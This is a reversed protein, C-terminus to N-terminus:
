LYQFSGRCTLLADDCCCSAVPRVYDFTSLHARHSLVGDYCCAKMYLVRRAICIHLCSAKPRDNTDNPVYLSFHEPPCSIALSTSHHNETNSGYIPVCAYKADHWMSPRSGHFAIAHWSHIFRVQRKRLTSWLATCLTPWFTHLPHATSSPNTRMNVLQWWQLHIWAVRKTFWSPTTAHMNCARKLWSGLVPSAHWAVFRCTELQACVSYQITAANPREKFFCHTSRPVDCSSCWRLIGPM